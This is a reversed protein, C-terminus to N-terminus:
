IEATGEFVEVADGRMRVHDDDDWAIDLDGGRLRVRCRRATRGTLAGAVVVACAGTGCAWTEGSGREWVRMRVEDRRVVDVFETNVRRPFFPHHEFRPGLSSLDLADIDPHFVVCHPNGVSLCTVRYGVGDVPLEVDVVRGEAAVPIRPGDLIPIGMDVTVASVTGGDVDLTVTRVGVDTEITMPNLRALGHEYAYKAVCRIGNGCMEGRSGDANYMEMRCAAIKSPAILILGDSGVGTRRPSLRRALAAPEAIPHAAADIYLYDNGCGHMKTFTLRAM